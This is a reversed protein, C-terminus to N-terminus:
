GFFTAAAAVSIGIAFVALNVGVFAYFVYLAGSSERVDNKRERARTFPAVCAMFVVVGLTTIVTGLRSM